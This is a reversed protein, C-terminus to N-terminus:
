RAGVEFLSARSRWLVTFMSLTVTMETILVAIAMGIPGMRSALMLALVVNLVGALTIIINVSRDMGHPLMWQVGFVNSLAITPVLWALVRLVPIAPEYAPGFVLRVIVPAGAWVVLALFMGLTGMAVLAIRGVKGAKQEDESALRSMRPYLAQSIPGLSSLVAKSIKEPGGYFAVRDPPVFLGLIFTNATTYLSVAARLFFMSWGLRLATRADSISPWPPRVDRGLQAALVCAAALGGLGQLALVKWADDPGRVILFTAATVAARMALNVGAPFAMRELGQFYWVPALGQTVASLWALAAFQPSSRFTDVFVTLGAAFAAVGVALILQAAFVGSVTKGLQLRDFRYRAIERTASLGFGYEVILGMWLAASQALLVMGYAGPKLVRALYPVTVLPLIYNAAQIAYLALANKTVPHKAVKEVLPIIEARM